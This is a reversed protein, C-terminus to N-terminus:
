SDRERINLVRSVISSEFNINILEAREKTLLKQIIKM